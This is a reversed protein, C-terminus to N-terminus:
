YCPLWSFLPLFPSPPLPNLLSSPFSLLSAPFSSLFSPPSQLSLVFHDLPPLSHLLGALPAPLDYPPNSPLILFQPSSAELYTIDVCDHLLLLTCNRINSHIPLLFGVSTCSVNQLQIKYYCDTAKNGPGRGAERQKCYPLAPSPRTCKRVHTVDHLLCPLNHLRPRCTFNAQMCVSSYSLHYCLSASKHREERSLQFSLTEGLLVTFVCLTTSVWM